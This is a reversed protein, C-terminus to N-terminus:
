KLKLNPYIIRFGPLIPPLQQIQQEMVREYAQRLNPDLNATKPNM